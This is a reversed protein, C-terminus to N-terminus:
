RGSMAWTMLIPLSDCVKKTEPKSRSHAASPRRALNRGDHASASIRGTGKLLFYEDSTAKMPEPYSGPRALKRSLTALFYSRLTQPVPQSSHRLCSLQLPLGTSPFCNAATQELELIM